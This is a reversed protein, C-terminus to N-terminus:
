FVLRVLIESIAFAGGVLAVAAVTRTDFEKRWGIFEEGVRTQINIKADSVTQDLMDVQARLAHLETVLQDTNGEVVSIRTATDGTTIRLDEASRELTNVKAGLVSLETRHGDEVEELRERLERIALM